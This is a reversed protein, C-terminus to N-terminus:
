NWRPEKVIEILKPLDSFINENIISKFDCDYMAPIEEARTVEDDLDGFGVSVCHIKVDPLISNLMALTFGSDVGGSLSITLENFDLNKQKQLLDSKIIDMISSETNSIENPVFDKASLPERIPKKYPDYRLTLLNIVSDFDVSSPMLLM